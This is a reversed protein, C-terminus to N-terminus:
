LIPNQEREHYEAQTGTFSLYWDTFTLETDRKKDIFGIEAAGRFLLMGLTRQFAANVARAKFTGTLRGNL